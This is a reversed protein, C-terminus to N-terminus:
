AEHLSVADCRLVHEEETVGSRHCGALAGATVAAAERLWGDDEVGQMPRKVLSKWLWLWPLFWYVISFYTSISHGELPKSGKVGCANKRAPSIM